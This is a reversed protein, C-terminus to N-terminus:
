LVGSHGLCWGAMTEMMTAVREGIRPDAGDESGERVQRATETFVRAAEQQTIVGKDILLYLSNLMAFSNAGAMAGFETDWINAAM